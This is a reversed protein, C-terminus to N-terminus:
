ARKHGKVTGFLHRKARREQANMLQPYYRFVYFAIDTDIQGDRNKFLSM